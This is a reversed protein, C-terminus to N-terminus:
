LKWTYAFISGLLFPHLSISNSASSIFCPKLLQRLVTCAKIDQNRRNLLADVSSHAYVRADQIGRSHHKVSSIVTNKYLALHFYRMDQSFLHGSHQRLRSRNMEFNAHRRGCAHYLCELLFESLVLQKAVASVANKGAFASFIPFTGNQKSSIFWIAM